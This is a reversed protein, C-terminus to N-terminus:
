KTLMQVLWADRMENQVPYTWHGTDQFEHLEKKAKVANYAAYMSTPPCTVDNFGWSYWGPQSLQRAFNVVDYYGITNIKEPTNLFTDTTDRFMHPWGGARGHLYGTMDSLAPYFAALYKIRKDLGATVISLAGGQSGGTVALRSGDFEPLSYIFDVARVCGLYVRKYYYEDRHDLNAKMYGQLAGRKLNDYVDQPLNVPVGHIGIQLSMLGKEALDVRGAYPRVGAGPVELVAAYPGSGKPKCLIGYMYAGEGFNQFRVHYVNVTPTCREPMLTLTSNLPIKKNDAVAQQWYSSFDQPLAVTPEIKEPEFAATGLGTYEKDDVQVWVWCRLFGPKEMTGGKIMTESRKLTLSEAKTVEMKEPRVEYRITIDTLPNGYKLVMVNFRVEEGLAYKWDSHDPAVIVKVLPEAPQALLTTTCTFFFLLAVPLYRRM